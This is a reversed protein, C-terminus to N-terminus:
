EEEEQSNALEELYMEVVNPGTELKFEQFKAIFAQDDTLEKITEKDISGSIDSHKGLVEGFYIPNDMALEMDKDNAVFISELDGQRGFYESYKYLKLM